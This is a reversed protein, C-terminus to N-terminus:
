KVKFYRTARRGNVEARVMFELNGSATLKSFQGTLEGSDSTPGQQRELEEVKGNSATRRLALSVTAWPVPKGDADLVRVGFDVPGKAPPAQRPLEVIDLEQARAGANVGLNMQHIVANAFEGGASATVRIEVPGDGGVPRAAPAGAVGTDSSIGHASPGSGFDVSAGGAPAEFVVLADRVPNGSGDTVRVMPSTASGAALNNNSGEGRIAEVRIAAPLLAAVSVALLVRTASSRM